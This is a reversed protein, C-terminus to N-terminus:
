TIEKTRRFLSTKEKIKERKISAKLIKLIKVVLMVADIFLMPAEKIIPAEM